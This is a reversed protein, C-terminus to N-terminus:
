MDGCRPAMDAPADGNYCSFGAATDCIAWGSQYDIDPTRDFCSATGWAFGCPGNCSPDNWLGRLCGFGGVTWPKGTFLGCFGPCVGPDIAVAFLSGCGGGTPPTFACGPTCPSMACAQTTCFMGSVAGDGGGDGGGDSGADIIPRDGTALDAGGGIPANSCGALLVLLLSKM